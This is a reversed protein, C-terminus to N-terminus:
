FFARWQNGDQYFNIVELDFNIYNKSATAIFM